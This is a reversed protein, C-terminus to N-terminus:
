SVGMADRLEVEAAIGFEARVKAAMRNRRRESAKRERRMNAVLAREREVCAARVEAADAKYDPVPPVADARSGFGRRSYTGKHRQPLHEYAVVQRQRERKLRERERCVPCPEATRFERCARCWVLGRPTRLSIGAARAAHEVADWTRGPMMLVIETVPMTRALERLRSLERTTWPRGAM